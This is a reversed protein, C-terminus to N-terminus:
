VPARDFEGRQYEILHRYDDRIPAFIDLNLAVEDGVPEAYHCVNPPIRMMSGPGAEIVEDGVHFRVKGQLIMILQEFPHDHPRVEMGPHLWNLVCIM